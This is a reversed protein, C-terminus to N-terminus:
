QASTQFRVVNGTRTVQVGLTKALAPLLLDPNNAPLLGTLTQNLLASDSVQVQWGYDDRLLQVIDRVSTQQLRLHGQTWASYLAPQVHRKALTPAAASTEVLDGPQMLLNERTFWAHRDVAVKGSNLVVKTGTPQSNVNFQTGLVAIDLGGAHVVFKAPAPASAIDRVAPAALHTVQFYAEGTLWVERPTTATWQAATTLTANGNLVVVSGDPLTLTRQQNAGAVYQMTPGTSASWQWWGAVALLIATASTGVLLRTRRQWSLWPQTRPAYLSQRLRLLEQHKLEAPVPYLPGPGLGQVLARAQDADAQRGPHAALWAQWTRGAESDADAVFAQFSEDVVFDNVSYNTFDM